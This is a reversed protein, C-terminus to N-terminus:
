HTVAGVPRAAAEPLCDPIRERALRLATTWVMVKPPRRAVTNVNDAYHDCLSMLREYTREHGEVWAVVALQAAIEVAFQTPNSM